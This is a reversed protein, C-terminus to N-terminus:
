PTGGLALAARELADLAARRDASTRADRAARALEHLQSQSVSAHSNLVPFEEHHQENGQKARTPHQFATSRGSPLPSQSPADHGNRHHAEPSRQPLPEAEAQARLATPDLSLLADQAQILRHAADAIHRRSLMVGPGDPREDFAAQHAHYAVVFEALLALPHREAKKPTSKSDNATVNM